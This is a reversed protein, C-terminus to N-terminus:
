RATSGRRRFRCGLSAPEDSSLPPCESMLLIACREISTRAPEVLTGHRHSRYRSQHTQHVAGHPGPAYRENESLSGFPGTQVM